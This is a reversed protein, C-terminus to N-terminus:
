SPDVTLDLSTVFLEFTEQRTQDQTVPIEYKEAIVLKDESVDVRVEREFGISAGPESFGWRRGALMEPELPKDSDDGSKSPKAGPRSPTMSM